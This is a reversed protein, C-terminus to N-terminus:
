YKCWLIWFLEGVTGNTFFYRESFSHIPRLMNTKTKTKKKRWFCQPNTNGVMSRDLMDGVLEAVGDPSIVPASAAAAGDCCCDDDDVLFGSGTQETRFTTISWTITGGVAKSSGSNRCSCCRSSFTRCCAVVLTPAFRSSLPLILVVEIPSVLGGGQKTGTKRINPGMIRRSRPTSAWVLGEWDAQKYTCPAYGYRRARGRIAPGSPDNCGNRDSPSCCM